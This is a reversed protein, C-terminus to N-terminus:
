AQWKKLVSEDVFAVAAFIALKIDETDYGQNRAQKDALKLAEIVQQRFTAPNSVSQRGSRLRASGVLIEQFILGLNEHRRFPAPSDINSRM